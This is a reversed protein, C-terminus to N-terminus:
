LWKLISGPFFDHLVPVGFVCKSCDSLCNQRINIQSFSKLQVSLRTTLRLAIITFYFACRMTHKSIKHQLNLAMYKALLWIYLDNAM